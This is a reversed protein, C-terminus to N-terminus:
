RGSLRARGDNNPKVAKVSLRACSEDAEDEVRDKTKLKEEECDDERSASLEAIYHAEILYDVRGHISQKRISIRLRPDSRQSRWPSESRGPSKSFEEERDPGQSMIKRRVSVLDKYQDETASPREWHWVNWSGGRKQELGVVLNVGIGTHPIVFRFWGLIHLIGRVQTSPSPITRLTSLAGNWHERPWINDLYWSGDTYEPSRSNEFAVSFSPVPDEPKQKVFLVEYSGKVPSTEYPEDDQHKQFSPTIVSNITHARVRAFQNGYLRKIRIVPSRPYDEDDQRISCELVANYEDAVLEGYTDLPQLFLALQFGQNTISWTTNTNLFSALIPRYDEVHAFHRPTEALLGSLYEDPGAKSVKWAFISHDNSKKLVEEQLRIFAKNGEGYLMPMNVDFLGMLCYAMDEVRTTQRGSAWKMRTAISVENLQISGALIGIDIGTIEAIHHEIWTVRTGQKSAGMYRWNRAYFHVERPAILEQLTWGRTFWRSNRCYTLFSDEWHEYDTNDEVDELYVYCVSARKYWRFMSNIAESLEASSSKDICCTDVWIYSYMDEAAVVATDRIKIYGKKATIDPSKSRSYPEQAQILAQVEQFSVEEDGWTHSLIAYKPASEESVQVLKLNDLDKIDLLWM